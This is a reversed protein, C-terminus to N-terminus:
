NQNNYVTMKNNSISNAEFDSKSKLKKKKSKKGKEHNNNDDDDNLESKNNSTNNNNNKSISKESWEEILSSSNNKNKLENNDDFNDNDENAMNNDNNDAEDNNKLIYMVNFSKEVKKNIIEEAKLFLKILQMDFDGQELNRKAIKKGSYSEEFNSWNFKENIFDEFSTILIEVDSYDIYGKGDKDLIKYLIDVNIKDSLSICKLYAYLTYYPANDSNTLIKFIKLSIKEIEEEEIEDNQSLSSNALVFSEQSIAIEDGIFNNFFVFLEIYHYLSLNFKQKVEDCIPYLKNILTYIETELNNSM